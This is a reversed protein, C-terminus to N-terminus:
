AESRIARGAVKRTFTGPLWMHRLRAGVLIFPRVVFLRLLTEWYFGNWAHIFFISKGSYLRQWRIVSPVAPNRAFDGLVSASRLYQVIRLSCHGILHFMAFGTFGLAIECYMLGVQSMVSYALQGKINSQTRGVLTGGAATLFGAVGVFARLGPSWSWLDFSRLLLLPALHVSLGGYFAASSPTPGEMARPMWAIFPFQSGKALTGFILFAGVWLLRPEYPGGVLDAAFPKTSDLSLEGPLHHVLLAAALLGDDSVKYSIFASLSREGTTRQGVFFGILLFSALGVIEWGLLVLDLSEVAAIQVVGFQLIAFLLMFRHYSSDRHLYNEGFHAVVTFILQAAFVFSSTALDLGLAIPYTHHGFELWRGLNVRAVAPFRAISIGFICVALILGLRASVTVIGGAVRESLKFGFLLPVGLIAIAGFSTIWLCGALVAGFNSWNV